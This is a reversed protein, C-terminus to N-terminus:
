KKKYSSLKSKVKKLPIDYKSNTKIAFRIHVHNVKEMFNMKISVGEFPMQCILFKNCVHTPTSFDDMVYMQFSM